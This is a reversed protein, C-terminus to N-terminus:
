KKTKKGGKELKKVKENTEELLELEHELNHILRGHEKKKLKEIKKSIAM